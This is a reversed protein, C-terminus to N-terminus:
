AKAPEIGSAPAPAAAATGEAPSPGTPGTPGTPSTPSTPGTAPAPRRREVVTTLLRTLGYGLALTLAGGLADLLYHNGTVVICLLTLAPYVWVLVKLAGNKAAPGLALACWLSWAFHLSPMAAYQNSVANMPGSDFSWLGGVARLTDVIHYSGPLLRPPMLPFFAFGVLALATTVALTNRWLPYRGPQRRFLYVLAGLTIVFHATGYFDDLTRVVYHFHLFWAQIRHEQFIGFLREATVVRKANTFAQARSVPRTGRLDRVLTYAAYFAAIYIVERWWHLRSGTRPSPFSSRSIGGTV